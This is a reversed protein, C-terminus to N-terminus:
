RAIAEFARLRLRVSTTILCRLGQAASRLVLVAATTLADRRPIYVLHSRSARV